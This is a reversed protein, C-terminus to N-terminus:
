DLSHISQEQNNFLMRRKDPILDFKCIGHEYDFIWNFFQLTDTGLLSKFPASLSTLFPWNYGVCGGIRIEPLIILYCDNVPFGSALTPRAAGTLRKGTKIWGDNFGLDYLRKYYITTASAGTDIKYAFTEM